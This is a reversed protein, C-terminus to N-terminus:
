SVKREEICTRLFMEAMDRTRKLIKVIKERCILNAANKLQLGFFSIKFIKVLNQQCCGQQILKECNQIFPRALASWM